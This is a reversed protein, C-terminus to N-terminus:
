FQKVTLSHLLNTIFGYKFIGGHRLCTAFEQMLSLWEAFEKLINTQYFLCIYNMLLFINVVVMYFCVLSQSYM